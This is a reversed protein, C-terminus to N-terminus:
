PPDLWTSCRTAGGGLAGAAAQRVARRPRLADASLLSEDVPPACAGLMDRGRARDFVCRVHWYPLMPDARMEAAPDAGLAVFRPPPLTSSTPRWRRWRATPPLTTARCSANDGSVVHFTRTPGRLLELLSDAVVDVPVIDVCAGPDALVIRFCAAPSPRCRGYIVNVDADLRHRPRRRVISPRVIAALLGSDNVAHECELKTRKYTNRFGQGVDGDHESIRGSRDGAVYATSVHVFRDLAGRDFTESALTIM